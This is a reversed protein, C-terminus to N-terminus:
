KGKLAMLVEELKAALDAVGDNQAPATGLGAILNHVDEATFQGYIGDTISVNSHMVNQSVAKLGAMDRVRKLAYVVHGHRLKHPSFYRVEALQCIHRIGRSLIIRRGEGAASAEALTEGSRSLHAFWMASPPLNARVFRDWDLVAELLEAIRLLATEAAKHNKTRVGRAPAQQITLRVPDFCTIPMSVFADARMGSLYLFAMAARNRRELLTTPELLVIKQMDDQTYYDHSKIESQQGRARGPRITNIWSVTIAKYRGPYETKAWEFFARAANCASTVTTASLNGSRGDARARPHSIYAPFTLDIGRAKSLLTDDAWVLLHRFEGRRKKVTKPDNQLVRELYALYERVDLYNRRNIM